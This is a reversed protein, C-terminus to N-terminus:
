LRYRLIRILIKQQHNTPHGFGHFQNWKITIETVFEIRKGTLGPLPHHPMELRQYCVRLVTSM